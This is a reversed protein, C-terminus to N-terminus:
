LLQLDERVSNLIEQERQSFQSSDMMKKGHVWRILKHDHFYYRDEVTSVVKSAGENAHKEYTDTKEYCFILKGGAFYYEWVTKGTSGFLKLIAKKLVEGEYYKKISAGEASLGEVESEQVKYKKEGANITTFEKRISLIIKNEDISQAITSLCILFAFGTLLKSKM